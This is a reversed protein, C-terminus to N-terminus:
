YGRSSEPPREEEVLVRRLYKGVMSKPLESRLEVIEAASATAGPRVVIFAKVTEGRYVDPVGAVVAERVASHMHPYSRLLEHFFSVDTAAPVKAREGRRSQALRALSRAPWPM